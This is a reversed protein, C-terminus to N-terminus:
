PNKPTIAALVTEVEDHGHGPGSEEGGQRCWGLPTSHFRTDRRVPNAGRALLYRVSDARGCFAAEHLATSGDPDVGDVLMGHALLQDIVGLQGHGAAIRLAAVLDASSSDASRMGAVDGAAAAQVLDTAGAALLVRVPDDMGCEVAQRLARDKTGSATADLDAGAEILVQAVEADGYSAATMLPTESDSPDGEVPAGAVLLARAMAGTGALDRWVGHTTDYRMMAVYSLPRVGGRHDCWGRMAQVALEPHGALLVRLRGVDLSELIERREVEAKLASWSAFGYERAVVLQATALIPRESVARLRIAADADGAGSARLADKAQHRLPTLDARAPLEPM